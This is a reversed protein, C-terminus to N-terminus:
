TRTIRMGGVDLSSLGASTGTPYIVVANSFKRLAAIGGGGLTADAGAASYSEDIDEPKQLGEVSGSATYEDVGIKALHLGAGATDM